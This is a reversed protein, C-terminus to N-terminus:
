STAIDMADVRPCLATFRTPLTNTATNSGPLRAMALETSPPKAVSPEPLSLPSSGLRLGAALALPLWPLMDANAPTLMM